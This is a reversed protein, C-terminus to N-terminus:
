KHYPHNNIIRFARYIQEILILRMLNHPFTMKSFSLRYNSRKLVDRSLGNSGGIVFVLDRGFGKLRENEIFRSFSVSSMERGNIELTVIYDDDSIKKLIREGERDIVIELERDSLSLPAPEDNLEVIDLRCYVRLRKEFEGILDRLSNEKIKGVCLIRINM